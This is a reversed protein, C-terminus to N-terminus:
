CNQKVRLSNEREHNKQLVKEHMSLKKKIIEKILKNSFLPACLINQSDNLIEAFRIKRKM